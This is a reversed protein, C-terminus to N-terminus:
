SNATLERESIVAVGGNTGASKGWDTVCLTGDSLFTLSYPEQINKFRYRHVTSDQDFRILSKNPKDPLLVNRERDVYLSYSQTGAPLERVSVTAGNNRADKEYLQLRTDVHVLVMATDDTLFRAAYPYAKTYPSSSQAQQSRESFSWDGVRELDPSM